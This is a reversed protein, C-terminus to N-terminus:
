VGREEWMRRYANELDRTFVAADTISSGAMRGRLGARLEALRQLNGALAVAREIYGGESDAALEGLGIRELLSVGVRAVHTEGARVVVPVGMWLAECTTTTGHYPFTDLAIDIRNYLELHHAHSPLAGALEVRAEDMGRRAFMGLIRRRAEEDKLARSKLVLRSGPVQRLVEAWAAVVAPRVKPLANFSGFTVQGTRAAPLEAVQPADAPPQYCSFGHPMRVLRESHLHETAGPPDCWADTLRYDIAELGTTNPYGIWTVAVPAPRRAFVALRNQATHGALDVLIDIQERRVLDAAEDDAIGRIDHWRSALSQFRRTVADPQSDSFLHIEFASRDHARLVPEIFYACPHDRFDPSVYGIRQLTRGGAFPGSAARGHIAAWARHEEFVAAPTWALDYNLCFLLNSHASAFDPRLALASRFAEVAEDVRGQQYLATGLNSYARYFKPDAAIADRCARAAQELRGADILSGALNSLAEAYAPKLALAARYSAIADETRGARALAHGLTNHAEAYHRHIRLAIRCCEAAEELRNRDLYCTGLNHYAEAYEPRANLAERYVAVAESHRGQMQLAIGLFNFTEADNPKRSLNERCLTGAEEFREQRILLVALARRIDVLEPRLRLAERFSQKAEATEGRVFLLAGLNVHADAYDPRLRAAERFCEAAERARGLMRLTVGLNNRAEALDPRGALAREYHFVAEELRGTRLLANGINLEAEAYDPDISLACEYSRIAEDLRELSELVTGLNNHLLAADPAREVAKRIL